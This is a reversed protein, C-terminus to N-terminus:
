GGQFGDGVRRDIDAAAGLAERDGYVQVLQDVDLMEGALLHRDRDVDFLLGYGPREAVNGQGDVALGFTLLGLQGLVADRQGYGAGLGSDFRQIQAIDFRGHVYGSLRVADEGHRDGSHDGFIGIQDNFQLGLGDGRRDLLRRRFSPKNQTLIM